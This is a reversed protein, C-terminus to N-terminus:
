EKNIINSDIEKRKQYELEENYLKLWDELASVKEPQNEELIKKAIEYKKKFNIIAKKRYKERGYEIAKLADEFERGEKTYISKPENEGRVFVEIDDTLGEEIFAKITRIVGDYSEDHANKEVWRPIIGYELAMAYREFTSGYSELKPVALIDMKIKYNNDKFDKAFDIFGQTNRLAGEYIVNYGKQILEQLVENKVKETDSHLIKHTIEIYNKSVEEYNPHLARLEDFDVIVANNNLEQYAIPILKSKGAASQGGVIILTKDKSTKKGTTLILIATNRYNKFKEESLSYKKSLEKINEQM